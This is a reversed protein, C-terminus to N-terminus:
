DSWQTAEGDAMCTTYKLILKETTELVFRVSGDGMVFQCGGPHLSAAPSWWSRVRGRVPAYPPSQWTPHVWPMHWLNIGANAESYHLDVGTM